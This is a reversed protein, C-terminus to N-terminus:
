KVKHLNLLDMTIKNMKQGNTHSGEKFSNDTSDKEKMLVSTM